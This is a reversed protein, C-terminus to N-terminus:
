FFNLHSMKVALKLNEFVRWFTGNKANKILKQGRLIYAYSAESAINFSVKETIKLCRASLNKRKWGVEKISQVKKVAFTICTSFKSKKWWCCKKEEKGFQIRKKNFNFNSLWFCCCYNKQLYTNAQLLLVLWFSYKVLPVVAVAPCSLIKCLTDHFCSVFRLSLFFPSEFVKRCCSLTGSLVSHFHIKCVM